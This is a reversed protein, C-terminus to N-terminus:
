IYGARSKCGATNDDAKNDCVDKYKKTTAFRWYYVHSDREVDHGGSCGTGNDACRFRWTLFCACVPREFVNLDPLGLGALKEHAEDRSADAV